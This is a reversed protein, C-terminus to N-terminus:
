HIVYDYIQAKIWWIAYTAFRCGNYPNFKKIAKILGINGESILDWLMIGYGSFKAAIKVVFRLHSAIVKNAFKLDKSELFSCCLSYEEEKSLIPFKNIRIIYDSLCPEQLMMYNKYLMDLIELM